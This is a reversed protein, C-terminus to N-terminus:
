GPQPPFISACVTYVSPQFSMHVSWVVSQCCPSRKWGLGFLPFSTIYPQGTDDRIHQKSTRTKGRNSLLAGQKYCISSTWVACEKFILARLLLLGARQPGHILVLCSSGCCSYLDQPAHSRQARDKTCYSGKEGKWVVVLVPAMLRSFSCFGELM